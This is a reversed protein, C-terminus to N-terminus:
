HTNASAAIAQYCCRAADTDPLCELAFHPVAQIIHSITDYLADMMNPEIKLGSASSLIYAYAEPMKLRRAENHPAQSLKVIGGVEASLNKYCPTKGSWPSGYVVVKGKGDTEFYRLIPNDDNLLWADEFAAMWQRAHTSKGTGSKGLFLYGRQDNRVVVAAHMELTRLHATAFAYVLMAANNIAFATQETDIQVWAHRFDSRAMIRACIPSNKVQSICLLWYLTDGSPIRYVEIRPMDDDSSDTFVHQRPSDEVPLSGVTLCFLEDTPKDWIRFPEYNTLQAFQESDAEMSFVHEAVRYSRREIRHNRSTAM